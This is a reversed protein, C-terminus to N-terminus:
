LVADDDDADDFQGTAVQPEQLEFEQPVVLVSDLYELMSERDEETVPPTCSRVIMEDQGYEEAEGEDDGDDVPHLSVLKCLAAFILENKEPEESLITLEISTDDFSMSSPRLQIYVSVPDEAMAHLDICVAPVVLDNEIFANDAAWFLINNTTIMITGLASSEEPHDEIDRLFSVKVESPGFLMTEDEEMLQQIAVSVNDGSTARVTSLNAEEGRTVYFEDAM